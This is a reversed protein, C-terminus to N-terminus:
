HVIRMALWLCLLATSLSLGLHEPVARGCFFAIKAAWAAVPTQAPRHMHMHMHMHMHESGFEM